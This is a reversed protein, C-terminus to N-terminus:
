WWRSGANVMRVVARPCCPNMRQKGGAARRRAFHRHALAACQLEGSEYHNLDEASVRLYYHCLFASLSSSDASPLDGRTLSVARGVLPKALHEPRAAM